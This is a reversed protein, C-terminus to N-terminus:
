MFLNCVQKQLQRTKLLVLDLKPELHLQEEFAENRRAVVAERSQLMKDAQYLKQQLTEVLRDM